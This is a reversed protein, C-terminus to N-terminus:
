VLQPCAAHPADEKTLSQNLLSDVFAETTPSLTPLGMRHSLEMIQTLALGSRRLLSEDAFVDAPTGDAEVQGNHLVIVRSAWM